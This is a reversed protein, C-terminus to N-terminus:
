KHWSTLAMCSDEAGFSGRRRETSPLSLCIVGSTGLPCGRLILGPNVFDSCSSVEGVNRRGVSVTKLDVLEDSYQIRTLTIEYGPVTNFRVLLPGGHCMHAADRPM